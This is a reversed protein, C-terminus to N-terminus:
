TEPCSEFFGGTVKADLRAELEINFQLLKAPPTSLCSSIHVKSPNLRVVEDVAPTALDSKLEGVRYGSPLILVNLRETAEGCSVLLLVSLILARDLM